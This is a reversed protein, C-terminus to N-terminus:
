MGQDGILAEFIEFYQILRRTVLFEEAVRRRAAKGIREAVAPDALLGALAAGFADLDRADGILVGSEGDGIQDQMGGVRSAIVPREKWMAEAVTLGFGEAISKQVVVDSRRQLANVMAANEQIDVMPLSVLHTKARLDPGLSARRETVEALVGVGEPDDFVASVDPGALVLQVDEDLEAGAFGEIVGVPDKLRDWRSVQTVLRAGAPLPADQVVIAPRDVRAPTGDTRRFVSPGARGDGSLGIVQLIATVAEPNLDQNKPSFPDISPPVIATKARDLGEWVYAQRSFAFGHAQEVYPRLFDWAARTLDNPEDAGIHARWLVKVGASRLDPIMGAPQPDHILAVDGPRILALLASSGPALGAEYAARDSAGLEGGDGPAGHLMNHLRKTVRFFEEGQGAVVWRTDVGTARVYALHSRLMEAVGGGQGTSNVQWIVRGAFLERARAAASAVEEYQDGLLQRFRELPQPAVEVHELPAM